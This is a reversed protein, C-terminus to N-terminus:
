TGDQIAKKTSVKSKDQSVTSSNGKMDAIQKKLTENEAKLADYSAIPQVKSLM